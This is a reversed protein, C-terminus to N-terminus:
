YGRVLPTISSLMSEPYVSGNEYSRNIGGESHGSQGEAGYKSISTICLQLILSEYKKDYPKEPTAIFRRRENVAEIACQVENVRDSLSMERFGRVKLMSNLREALEKIM